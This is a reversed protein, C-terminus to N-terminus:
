DEDALYRIAEPSVREDALAGSPMEEPLNHHQLLNEIPVSKEVVAVQGIEPAPYIERQQRHKGRFLVLAIAVLAVVM